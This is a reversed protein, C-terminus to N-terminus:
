RTDRWVEIEAVVGAEASALYLTAEESSAATATAEVATGSGATTETVVLTFAEGAIGSTLDVVLPTLADITATIQSTEINLQGGEAPSVSASSDTFALGEWAQRLTTAVQATSTLTGITVIITTSGIVLQITDNQAWTNAITVTDVQSVKTRSWGVKEPTNHAQGTKVTTYPATPTAVFGTRFAKRMNFATRCQLSYYKTGKPLVQSYETDADTLTLNFVEPILAESQSM